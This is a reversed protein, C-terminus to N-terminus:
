AAKALLNDLYKLSAGMIPRFEDCPDIMWDNVFRSTSNAPKIWIGCYDPRNRHEIELKRCGACIFDGNTYHAATEGCECKHREPHARRLQECRKVADRKAQTTKYLIKKM